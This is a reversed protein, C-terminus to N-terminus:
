WVIDKIGTELFTSAHNRDAGSFDVNGGCRSAGIAGELASRHWENHRGESDPLTIPWLFLTKQRNIATLLVVHRFEEALQARIAPDLLYWEKDDELVATEIRFSEEPRVRVFWSRHPKGVPVTTLVKKVGAHEEYDQSLRLSEIDFGMEDNGSPERGEDSDRTTKDDTM